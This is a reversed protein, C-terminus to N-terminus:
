EKYSLNLSSNKFSLLWSYIDINSSSLLNNFLSLEVVCGKVSHSIAIIFIHTFLFLSEFGIFVSVISWLM